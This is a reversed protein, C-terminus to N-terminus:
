GFFGTFDTTKTYKLGLDRLILPKTVKNPGPGFSHTPGTGPNWPSTDEGYGEMGSGTTQGPGLCRARPTHFQHMKKVNPMFDTFGSNKESGNKPGVLHVLTGICPLTSGMGESGLWENPWPGFM